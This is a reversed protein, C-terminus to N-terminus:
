ALKGISNCRKEMKDGCSNIRSGFLRGRIKGAVALKGERLQNRENEGQGGAPLAFPHVDFRTVKELCGPPASKPKICLSDVAASECMSALFNGPGDETIDQSFGHIQGVAEPWAVRRKKPMTHRDESEVAGLVVKGCCFLDTFFKIGLSAELIFAFTVIGLAQDCRGIIHEPAKGYGPSHDTDMSRLPLFSLSKQGRNGGSRHQEEIAAVGAILENGVESLVVVPVKQEATRSLGGKRGNLGENGAAPLLAKNQDVGGVLVELPEAAPLSLLRLDDLKPNDLQDAGISRDRHKKGVQEVLGGKAFLIDEIEIELAPRNFIVISVLLNPELNLFEMSFTGVADTLLEEGDDNHGHNGAGKHHESISHVACPGSFELELIGDHGQCGFGGYENRIIGLPGNLDEGLDEVGDRADFVVPGFGGPRCLGSDRFSGGVFPAGAPPFLKFFCLEVANHLPSARNGSCGGGGVDGSLANSCGGRSQDHGM